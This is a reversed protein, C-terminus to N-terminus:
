YDTSFMPLLNILIYAFKTLFLKLYEIALELSLLTLKFIDIRGKIYPDIRAMNVFFM